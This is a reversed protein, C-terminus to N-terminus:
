QIPRKIYKMMLFTNVYAFFIYVVKGIICRMTEIEKCKNKKEKKISALSHNLINLCEFCWQIAYALM